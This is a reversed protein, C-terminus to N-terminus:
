NKIKKLDEINFWLEKRELPTEPTLFPNNLEIIKRTELKANLIEKAHFAYFIRDFSGDKIAVELGRHIIDALKKNGKKVYFYTPSPYHLVIYADIAIDMEQHADFENWIEMVSRPFYDFRGAELMRFLFEVEYSREVKIGSAVLLQTDSWHYGQGATFKRLDNLNHVKAFLDSNKKTVLPIRWGSLGKMFCIRIPLMISEREQTAGGWVIDISNGDVLEALTRIKNLQSLVPVLTLKTGSKQIALRLIEVSYNNHSELDAQQSVPFRVADLAFAPSIILFSFAFVFSIPRVWRKEVFLILMPLQKRKETKENAAIQSM